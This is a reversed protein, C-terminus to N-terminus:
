GLSVKGRSRSVALCLVHEIAQAFAKQLSVTPERPSARQALLVDGHHVQTLVLITIDFSEECRPLGM